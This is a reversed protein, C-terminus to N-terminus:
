KKLEVITVGSEGEGFVGLRYSKVASHRKLHDQVAKRLVGTGKGHIITVQHIGNLQASDIFRDVELLADMANQGRLDLESMGGSRSSGSLQKTVSRKPKPVSVKEEELLRLNSVPVRTKIIGAQVTASDGNPSLETIVAKKELDFILVNDGVKLPRPLVYASQQRQHVPDATQELNRLGSRLQSKQQATLTKEKKAQEIEDMMAEVQARTRSVLNRAQRQAVEMEKAAHEAIRAKEAEAEQVMREAKRRLAEAAQHEEELSQRREELNQVVQEFEANEESVLVKAREIIEPSIGLKLSIAFANSRGPVGILLRYTPRLTSVDFECCGNEVGDTQLAFEKLEAYHTTVGIKAGKRRLEEIMAIGLAAGEVPDTGAGVEDM